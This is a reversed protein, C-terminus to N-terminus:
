KDLREIANYMDIAFAIVINLGIVVCLYYFIVFYIRTWNTGTIDVYMNTNVYWNNVVMLEFMTVFSSALDNFNNYIYIDPTSDDNIIEPTNSKIKGGFMYM